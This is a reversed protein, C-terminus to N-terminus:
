NVESFPWNIIYKALNLNQVFLIQSAQITIEMMM